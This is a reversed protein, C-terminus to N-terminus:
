SRIGVLELNTTNSVDRCTPSIRKEEGKSGSMGLTINEIPNIDQKGGVYRDWTKKLGAQRHM